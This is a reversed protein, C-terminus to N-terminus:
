CAASIVLGSWIGPLVHCLTPHPWTNAYQLWEISPIHFSDATDFRSDALLALPNLATVKEVGM